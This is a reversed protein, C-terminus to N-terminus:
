YCKFILKKLLPFLFISVLILLIITKWCAVMIVYWWTDSPNDTFNFIFWISLINYWFLGFMRHLLYAIWYLVEKSDEETPFVLKYKTEYIRLYIDVFDLIMVVVFWLKLEDTMTDFYLSLIIISSTIFFSNLSVYAILYNKSLFYNSKNQEITKEPVLTPIEKLEVFAIDFLM